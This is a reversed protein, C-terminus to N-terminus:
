IQCSLQAMLRRQRIKSRSTIYYSTDIPILHFFCLNNKSNLAREFDLYRLHNVESSPDSSKCTEIYYRKFHMVWLNILENKQVIDGELDKNELNLTSMKWLLAGCVRQLELEWLTVTGVQIIKMKFSHRHEPAHGTFLAM